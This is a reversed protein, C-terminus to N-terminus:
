ILERRPPDTVAVRFIKTIFGTTKSKALDVLEVDIQQDPQPRAALVKARLDFNACTLIRRGESTAVAFQPHVKKAPDNPFAFVRSATIVGTCRDGIQDFRAFEGDFDGGGSSENDFEEWSIM